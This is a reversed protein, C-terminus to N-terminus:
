QCSTFHCQSVCSAPALQSSLAFSTWRDLPIHRQSCQLVQGNSLVEDWVHELGSVVSSPRPLCPSLTAESSFRLFFCFLSQSESGRLCSDHAPCEPRETPGLSAHSDLPSQCLLHWASVPCTESEEAEERGRRPIARITHPSQSGQQSRRVM